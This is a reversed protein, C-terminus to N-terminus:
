IICPTSIETREENYSIQHSTKGIVSRVSGKVEQKPVGREKGEQGTFPRLFFPIKCKPALILVLMRTIFPGTVKKYSVM